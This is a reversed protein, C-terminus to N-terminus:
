TDILVIVQKNGISYTSISIFPYYFKKYGFDTDFSDLTGIEMDDPYDKLLDILEKKTM